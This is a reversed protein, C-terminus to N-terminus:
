REEGPPTRRTQEPATEKQREDEKQREAEEKQRRLAELVSSRPPTNSIVGDIQNYNEEESLEAAALMNDKM